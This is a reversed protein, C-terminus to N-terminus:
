RSKKTHMISAAKNDSLLNMDEGKKNTRNTLPELWEGLPELWEELYGVSIYGNYLVDYVLETETDEAELINQRGSDCHLSIKPEGVYASLVVAPPQHYLGDKCASAIWVLEGVKFEMM